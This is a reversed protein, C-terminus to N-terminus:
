QVLRLVNVFTVADGVGVLARGVVAVPLSHALAFLTEGVVIALVGLALTRRPGIRDAAFGAPLQMALYAGLQLFAFLGLAGTAVGLREATDGAAVNLTVRHFFAMLYASVGVAWVLWARANRGTVTQEDM